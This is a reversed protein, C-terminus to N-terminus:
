QLIGVYKWIIRVDQVKAGDVVEKEGIEIREVLSELLGRDVENITSKEKILAAWRDIDALKADTSEVTQMLDSLRESLDARGTEVKDALTQFTDGSIAGAVKDEYLQDIQLELTHLRSELTRREKSLDRKETQHKGLLSAQLSQLIGDEDLTLLEAQEQIHSLVLKKLNPESIRHWSCLVRGSRTHTSCQYAGYRTTKGSYTRTTTTYNMNVQCDACRVFSGFLSPQPVRQSISKKKAAQNLVQVKQWLAEDVIPPHTNETRIWESEDRNIQRDDRYSRTKRKFAVIHGLYIENCLLLKVTRDGWMESCASPTKRNQRRFYYLRPPLVRDKNLVGAIAAYGM